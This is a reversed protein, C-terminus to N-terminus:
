EMYSKLIVLIHCVQFLLVKADFTAEFPFFIRHFSEFCQFYIKSLLFSSPCLKKLPKELEFTSHYRVFTGFAQSMWLAFPIFIHISYLFKEFVSSNNDTFSSVHQSNWRPWNVTFHGFFHFKASQNSWWSLAGTWEANDTHSNRAVFLIDNWVRGVWLILHLTVKRRAWFELCCWLSPSKIIDGRNMCLWLVCTCLKLCHVDLFAKVLPAIVPNGTYLGLFVVKIFPVVNILLDLTATISFYIWGPFYIIVGYLLHVV